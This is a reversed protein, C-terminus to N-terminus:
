NFTKGILITDTGWLKVNHNACIFNDLTRTSITRYYTGDVSNLGQTEFWTPNAFVKDSATARAAYDPDFTEYYNTGDRYIWIPKHSIYMYYIDNIKMILKFETENGVSVDFFNSDIKVAKDGNTMEYISGSYMNLIVGSAVEGLRKYGKANPHLGDGGPYDTTPATYKSFNFKNIGSNRYWDCVPIGYENGIAITMNVYDILRHGASNVYNVDYGDNDRQPDALLFIFKEPYTTKLHEIADKLAGSYTDINTTALTGLPVNLKFDNTPTEILIVDEKIVYNKIAYNIGNGNVTNNVMPAGSVGKNTYSAFGCTKRIEELYGGDYNDCLATISTGFAVFTKGSWKSGVAENWSNKKNVFDTITANFANTGGTVVNGDIILNDMNGSTVINNTAESDFYCDKILNRTMTGNGAVVKAGYKSYKSICSQFSVDKVDPISGDRNDQLIVFSTDGEQVSYCGIANCNESNIFAYGHQIAESSFCNRYIVGFAKNTGFNYYNKWAYCDSVIFGRNFVSQYLTTNFRNQHEFFFGWMKNGSARCGRITICEDTDYGYGIGFGSAGYTNSEQPAAKGCYAAICNEISSDHPCDVGFGTADTFRVIVNNWHCKEFNNVMFGKGASTYNTVSTESSDIIFNEFDCNKLPDKSAFDVYDNYYFMDLGNTTHGTPELVTAVGDGVIRVNSKLKICHEGITQKGNSAFPYTGAPIYITGGGSLGVTDILQQLAISNEKGTKKSSLGFLNANYMNTYRNKNKEYNNTNLLATAGVRSTGYDVSVEQPQVRSDIEIHTVDDFTELSNLAIQSATDLELITPTNLELQFTFPNEALLAKLDEVTSVRESKFRLYVGSKNVLLFGETTANAILDKTLPLHTCKNSEVAEYRNTPLHVYYNVIGYDNITTCEINATEDIVIEERVHKECWKGNEQVISDGAMMPKETYYTHIKQQFPAYPTAETGKELQIDTWTATYGISSSASSSSYFIIKIVDKVLELTKKERNGRALTVNVYTNDRYTFRATSINSTTDNSTVLASLTYTGIPINVNLVHNVEFSLDDIDLLNKGTEVIQGVYKDNVTLQIKGATEPTLGTNRHLHFKFYAVGNPAIIDEGFNTTTIASVFSEKDDYFLINCYPTTDNKISIVDGSKCPIPHRCCIRQSNDSYVGTSSSYGGQVMEVCDGTNNLSQPYEPSPSQQGGVFPEWTGDGDIYFMPKFTGTKIQDDKTGWYGLKLVCSEDDLMEQTIEIGTTTDGRYISAVGSGNVEVRMYIYPITATTGEPIGALKIKGPKLIRLTEEHTYAYATADFNSLLTGSGSVTFSGDGNNVCSAGGQTKSPIRSADFLQYGNYQKQETAGILHNLKAGGAKSGYLTSDTTTQIDMNALLEMNANYGDPTTDLAKEMYEKALLESTKANTESTKANQESIKANNAYKKANQESQYARDQYGNLAIIRDDLKDIAYDMKNLNDENLPTNKSPENEWDIRSYIKQM